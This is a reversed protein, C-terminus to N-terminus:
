STVVPEDASNAAKRWASRSRQPGTLLSALMLTSHANPGPACSLARGLPRSATDPTQRCCRSAMTAPLLLSVCLSAIRFKSM